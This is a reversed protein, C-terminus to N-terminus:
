KEKAGVQLLEVGAKQADDMVEVVKGHPVDEDAEIVLLLSPNVTVQEVLLKLLQESAIVRDEVVIREDKTLSVTLSNDRQNIQDTSAEPLSVEFSPANKFTTSLIFFLLLQFMIDILPTLEITSSTTRSRTFKM